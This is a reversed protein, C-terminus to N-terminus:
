KENCQQCETRSSFGRPSCGSYSIENCKKTEKNYFWRVFHAECLEDTPPQQLCPEPLNNEKKCSTLFMAGIFLITVITANTKLIKKM